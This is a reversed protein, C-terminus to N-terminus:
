TSYTGCRSVVYREVVPKYGIVFREIDRLDDRRRAVLVVREPEDVYVEVPTGGNSLLTKWMSGIKRLGDIGEQSLWSQRFHVVGVPMDDPLSTVVVVLLLLTITRM